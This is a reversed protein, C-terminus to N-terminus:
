LKALPYVNEVDLLLATAKPAAALPVAVVWVIERVRVTTFGKTKMLKVSELLM